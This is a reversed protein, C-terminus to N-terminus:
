TLVTVRARVRVPGYLWLTDSIWFDYVFQGPELTETIESPIDWVVNPDDDSLTIGDAETLELVPEVSEAEGVEERVQLKASDGTFDYPTDEPITIQRVVHEGQTFELAYFGPTTV